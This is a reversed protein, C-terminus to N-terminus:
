RYILEHRVFWKEIEVAVLVLASVAICLLLHEIPLAQTNFVSHFIPLYIICLQLLFTLIIAGLMPKNSLLGQKFLSTSEGRVVLSHFLQSFTLTTFVMTQWYPLQKSYAWALVAISLGGIFLGVWIIHQWMGHAFINEQPPRPARKMINEESPEASFALGPLGDTVLNIWLIHIPLLPIPLGMLPALFLTWVEGANSTMTYKIFKRINDFVKRGSKIAQVISAFNDDLLVMDAAERAVDTGKKGMAIGINAQQLAPADNIGDGTMAVFEGQKQLAEVIHLKQSPSVRAYVRLHKVKELFQIDDLETLEKGTIVDNKNDAIGLRKAIVMATGPHDGTIMVPTIGATKCDKIADEAELRPPDILGVLGLLTLNNEINEADTKEPKHEFIRQAFALVRYGKNALENATDLLAQTNCNETGNNLLIDKCEPIIVEPAGKSFVMFGNESKHFTTMQKRKSDFAIAGTRPFVKELEQKHFGSEKAALYMALETPEGSPAHHEDKIDNSLAMVQALIKVAKNTEHENLSSYEQQNAFFAEAKMKNETLTGTKDSCIYTVSGLTEVAPLNRVLTHNKILKHAGFALSIAVVSPLAEPIAAVALSIATLFMLLPPQGQLLGSIFVIICIAIVSLALYKGFRSLRIQLPTKVVNEKQLLQAINGIETHLGTQIVIGHGRGRTILTSKFVLNNQEGLPIETDLLAKTQKNVTHAEGTLASEDASLEEAVILRLDAPVINGAELHVIDGTVLESSAISLLRGNRVVMAAPASMKRLALVAKEAQVEQTIGIVANLLVIVLITITDQPDGLLGSIFAAALLVLIMFDSFQGLIIRYLSRRAKLPIENPGQQHLRAQAEHSDLGKHSTNCQELSQDVSLQYWNKSSM